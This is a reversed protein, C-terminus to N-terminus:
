VRRCHFRQFMRQSLDKLIVLPTLLLIRRIRIMRLIRQRFPLALFAELLNGPKAYLVLQWSITSEIFQARRVSSEFM